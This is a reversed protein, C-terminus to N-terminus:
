SGFKKQFYDGTDFLVLRALKEWSEIPNFSRSLWEPPLTAYIERASAYLTLDTLGEDFPKLAPPGTLGLEHLRHAYVHNIQILSDM